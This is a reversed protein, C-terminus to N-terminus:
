SPDNGYLWRWDDWYRSWRTYVKFKGIETDFDKVAGFEPAIRDYWVLSSKARASDLMFWANSDTLFDWIVVNLRGKLPNIANEGSEPDLTSNIIELATWELEPPVLLTNPNVVVIEEKDDTFARMNQITTRVGSVALANTGENEQTTGTNSPSLPHATSCLAVDDAGVRNFGEDDFADATEANFADIFVNAASKERKQGLALALKEVRGTVDRPIGAGPYLNDDILKRRVQVGGAFEHHEFETKYNKDFEGYQVRGSEEFNFHDTGLSGVGLHTEKNMRSSQVGFIQTRKYLQEINSLQLHFVKRLGPELLEAWNESIM